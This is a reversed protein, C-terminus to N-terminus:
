HDHGEHNEEDKVVEKLDMKCVPCSGVESYTKDDECKMPCQYEAMAMKSKETTEDVKVEEAAETQVKENDMKNEKCSTVFLTLVLVSTLITKKM